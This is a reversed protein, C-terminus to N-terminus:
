GTLFQVAFGNGLKEVATETENKRLGAPPGYPTTNVDIVYIRGSANDRLVDLECFDAAMATTFATIQGIEEPSLWDETAHLESRTVENTFRQAHTKFKRYVLPIKGGIVPVRLDVVETESVTNDIVVQYIADPKPNAIPLELIRGDHKANEDSKEVARGSHTLPNVQTCYGFIRQHIRDVNQKSIDTCNGNLVRVGEPLGPIETFQKFTADHFYLVLDTRSSPRNSLRAGLHQAIKHITTRKSPFDPYTVLRLSPGGKLASKVDQAWSKLDKTARESWPMSPRYRNRMGGSYTPQESM